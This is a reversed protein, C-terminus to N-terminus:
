LPFSLTTHSRVPLKFVNHLTIFRLCPHMYAHQFNFVQCIQGLLVVVFVRFCNWPLAAPCSFALSSSNALKTAQQYQLYTTDKFKIKLTCVCKLLISKEASFDNPCSKHGVNQVTRYQYVIKDTEVVFCLFPINM